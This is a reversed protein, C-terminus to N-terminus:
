HPLASLGTNVGVPSDGRERNKSSMERSNQVLLPMFRKQGLQTPTTQSLMTKLSFVQGRFDKLKLIEHLVSYGRM